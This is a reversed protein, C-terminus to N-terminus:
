ILILLHFDKKNLNNNIYFNFIIINFTKLFLKNTKINLIKIKIYLYFNYYM